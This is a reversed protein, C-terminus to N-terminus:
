ARRRLLMERTNSKLLFSDSVVLGEFMPHHRSEPACAEHGTGSHYRHRFSSDSIIEYKTYTSREPRAATCFFWSPEAPVCWASLRVRWRCHPMRISFTSCTGACSATWPPMATDFAHRVRGAAVAAHRRTHREIDAILDEIFLKCGLREGFFTVNTGIVPGFDLLVPASRGNIASLFKPFAKSGVVPEDGRPQPEATGTGEGGLPRKGGWKLLDSLM